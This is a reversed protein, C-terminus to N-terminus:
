EEVTCLCTHILSQSWHQQLEFKGTLVGMKFRKGPGLAIVTLPRDSYLSNTGHIAISTVWISFGIPTRKFSANNYGMLPLPARALQAWVGQM